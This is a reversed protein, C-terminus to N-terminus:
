VAARLAALGGFGNTSDGDAGESISATRLRKEVKRDLAAIEAPRLETRLQEVAADSRHQLMTSSQQAMRFWCYATGVNKDVGKGRLFADGVIFQATASGEEAAKLYIEFPSSAPGLGLRDTEGPNRASYLLFLLECRNSVGLKEFVRFIYNKVTHESLSLQTAIQRNSLGQSALEAVEMERRALTRVKENDVGDWSPASRVAQLLYQTEVPGAWIEGQSVREVCNWLESVPETRCFVGTAGCRFSAIVSDQDNEDVLIVVFVEPQHNSLRRALQYGKGKGGDFDASLVILDPKRAFASSLVEEPGTVAAIEFQPNRDLSEALLQSTLRNRDCISIRVGRTPNPVKPAPSLM